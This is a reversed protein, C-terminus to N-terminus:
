ILICYANEKDTEVHYGMQILYDLLDQYKDRIHKIEFKIYKPKIKNFPFNKLLVFDYGETDIKLYDIQLIKYTDLIYGWTITKVESKIVHTKQSYPVLTGMGKYDRDKNRWEQPAEYFARKGISVDLAFNLYVINDKKPLNDIYEKVPEVVVGRWGKDSLYVLNDFDCSGIELFTKM